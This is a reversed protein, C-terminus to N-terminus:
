GTRQSQDLFACDDRMQTLTPGYGNSYEAQELALLDQHLFEICDYLATTNGIPNQVDNSDIIEILRASLQGAWSSTEIFLEDFYTRDDLSLFSMTYHLSLYWVALFHVLLINSEPETIRSEPFTEKMDALSPELYDRADFGREAMEKALPIHLLNSNLERIVIPRLDSDPYKHSQLIYYGQKFQLAHILEHAILAPTISQESDFSVEPPETSFLSHYLLTNEIKWTITQDGFAEKVEALLRQLRKDHPFREILSSISRKRPRLLSRLRKLM